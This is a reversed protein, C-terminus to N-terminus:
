PIVAQVVNSYSSEEGVYNVATTAYYYTQGTAVSNDTYTANPDLVSNIKSFPPNPQTSRYVNYGAVQSDGDNWTLDVSHQLDGSATLSEVTPSNAANSTFSLTGSIAGSGSPTCTVTFDIPQGPTVTVPLTIGGLMFAPNSMSASSVTVSFTSAALQGNLSASQGVTVDGFDIEAPLITLQGAVDGTGSLPITLTPSSPSTALINGGSTGAAKPAFTVHFTFSQGAELILPRTVGSVSYGSGGTQSLTVTESGSGGDTVTMPLTSNSGVPVNGFALSAPVAQLALDNIGRGSVPLTSSSGNSAFTVVGSVSGAAIPTFTVTFNVSQHAGLTLPLNFDGVTFATASVNVQNVVVPSSGANTLTVPQTQFQGIVVKGFGLSRPNCVVQQRSAFAVQSSIGLLAIVLLAKFFVSRWVLQPLPM